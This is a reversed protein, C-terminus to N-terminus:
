AQVKISSIERTKQQYAEPSQHLNPYKTTGMIEM